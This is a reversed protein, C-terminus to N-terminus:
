DFIYLAGSNGAMNDAQDGGIGVANSEEDKATIVLTDGSLALQVGFRDDADTNSAKVYAGQSWTTAAFSMPMATCLGSWARLAM